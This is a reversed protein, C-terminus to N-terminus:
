FLCFILLFSRKTLPNIQSSGNKEVLIKISTYVRLVKQIPNYQFPQFVVAQGRLSRLIYPDRLFAFTEPYWGDTDYSKGYTYPITKPDIDRTLNGKSPLINEVVIDFYRTEIVSLEMHALDPIIISRAMRPLEPEGSQLIPVGGPFTIQSGGDQDQEIFYGNLNFSIEINEESDSIVVWEPESPDPSGIDVWDKAFPISLVLSFTIFFKKIKKM